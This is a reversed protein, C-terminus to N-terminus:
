FSPYEVTKILVTHIIPPISADIYRSVSVTFVNKKDEHYVQFDCLLKRTASGLHPFQVKVIAFSTRLVRIELSFDTLEDFYNM